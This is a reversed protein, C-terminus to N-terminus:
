TSLLVVSGIALCIGVAQRLTIPEDFVVIALLSAAVFYLAAITTPVTVSGYQLAAYYALGGIGFCFGALVAYEVGARTATERFGPGGEAVLLYGGGVAAGSVYTIVLTAEPSLTETALRSLVVWLGWMIMAVSALAVPATPISM